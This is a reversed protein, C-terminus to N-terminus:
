TRKPDDPISKILVGFMEEFKERPVRLKRGVKVVPLGSRGNTARYERAMCYATTRSIRLVRAAEEVTILDPVTILDSGERTLDPVERVLDAM